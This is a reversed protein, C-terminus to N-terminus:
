RRFMTDAWRVATTYLSHVCDPQLNIQRMLPTAREWEGAEYALLISWLKSIPDEHRGPHVLAECLDQRLDIGSLIQELPRGIIADLRSFLGITFVEGARSHLGVESALLEGFRARVLASVMVETPSDAALDIMVIISLLKRVENEGLRKMARDVSKAPQRMGYLASNAARLLKYSLAAERKVVNALQDFDFDSQNIRKLIELFNLKFGPIDLVSSTLPKSFFFGQFLSFGKELAWQFEERTEVKEAVLTKRGRYTKAIKACEERDANRFDVKIYNALDAFESQQSCNSIDDLAFRYNKAQLARCASIVCPKAEVNELIELVVHRAPVALAAESLLLSQPFNIFALKQNLLDTGGSSYFLANIVKATAVDGETGDFAKLSSGSRYLMEYAVVNMKGDFIPQRAVFLEMYAAPKFLEQIRIPV